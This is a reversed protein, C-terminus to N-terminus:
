KSQSGTKEADVLRIQGPGELMIHPGGKWTVWGRVEVDAAKWTLPDLGVDKFSRLTRALIEVTFDKRWDNGFNLFIRNGSRAAATVTGRVIKLRGTQIKDTANSTLDLQAWLGKAKQRALVEENILLDIGTTQDARPFVFALGREILVHQLWRGDQMTAQAIHEGNYTRAEGECFLTLTQGSVLQELKRRSLEAHPWSRYTDSKQWVEPAKIAALLLKQGAADVLRDGALANHVM